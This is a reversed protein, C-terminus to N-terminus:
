KITNVAEKLRYAISDEMNQQRVGVLWDVTSKQLLRDVRPTTNTMEVWYKSWPGSTAPSTAFAGNVKNTASNVYPPLSVGLARAAFRWGAKMTGVRKQINKIYTTIPPLRLVVQSWQGRKVAGSAGRRSKHLMASPESGIHMIRGLRNDGLASVQRNQTYGKVQKGKRTYGKVQVTGTKQGNLFDKAGEYDGRKMYQSFKSGNRGQRLVGMLTPLAVFVRNIDRSVAENGVEKGADLGRPPTMKLLSANNENRLLLRAQQDVTKILGANFAKQLRPLLDGLEKFDVTATVAAM